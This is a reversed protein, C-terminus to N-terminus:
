EIEDYGGDEDIDDLTYDSEEELGLSHAFEAEAAIDAIEDEREAIL